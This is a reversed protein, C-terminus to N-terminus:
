TVGSPPSDGRLNDGVDEVAVAQNAFVHKRLHGKKIGQKQLRTVPHDRTSKPELTGRAKELGNQSGHNSFIRHFM